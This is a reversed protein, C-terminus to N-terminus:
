RCRRDYLVNLFVMREPLTCSSLRGILEPEVWERFKKMDEIATHRSPVDLTKAYELLTEFRQREEAETKRQAFASTTSLALIVAILLVRKM